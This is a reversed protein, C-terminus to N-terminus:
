RILSLEDMYKKIYKQINDSSISLEVAQIVTEKTTGSGCAYSLISNHINSYKEDVLSGLRDTLRKFYVEITSNLLVRMSSESATITNFLKKHNSEIITIKEALVKLTNQIEVEKAAKM